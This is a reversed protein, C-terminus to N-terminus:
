TPLLTLAERVLEGRRGPLNARTELAEILPPKRGAVMATAAYRVIDLDAAEEVIGALVGSLRGADPHTLLLDVLALLAAGAYERWHEEALAALVSAPAGALGEFCAAALELKIAGGRLAQYLVLSHGQSSLLRAATVAPEGSMESTHRDGLIRVAHFAALAEDLDALVLLAAARLGGAVENRPRIEYTHLAEELLPVDSALARGRLGRLLAARLQCDPDPRRRDAALAGYRELLAQRARPDGDPLLELATGVAEVTKARALARLAEETLRNM